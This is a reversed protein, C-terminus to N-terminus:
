LGQPATEEEGDGAQEIAKEGDEDAEAGEKVPGAAGEKVTTSKRLKRQGPLPGPSKEAEVQLLREVVVTPRPRNITRTTAKAPMTGQTRDNSASVEQVLVPVALSTTASLSSVRLSSFHSNNGARVVAISPKGISFM